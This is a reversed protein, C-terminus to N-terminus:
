FFTKIFNNFHIRGTKSDKSSNIRQVFFLLHQIQDIKITFYINYFCRKSHLVKLLFIIMQNLHLQIYHKLIM